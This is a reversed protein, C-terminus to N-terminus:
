LKIIFFQGTLVVYSNQGFLGFRNKPTFFLHRKRAFVAGYFIRKMALDGFWISIGFSIKLAILLITRGVVISM